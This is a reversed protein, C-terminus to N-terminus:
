LRIQEFRGSVRWPVRVAAGGHIRQVYDEIHPWWRVLNQAKDWYRHSSWQRSLVFVALGARRLAECELDNKRFGDQSVIAWGGEESLTPIWEHDPTNRAFKQGLHFVSSGSEGRCLENLAAALHPSLNNDLLFKM